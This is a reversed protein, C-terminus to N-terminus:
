LSCACLTSRKFILRAKKTAVLSDEKNNPIPNAKHISKTLDAKFEDIGEITVPVFILNDGEGISIYITLDKISDGSTDCLFSSQLACASTNLPSRYVTNSCGLPNSRLINETSAKKKREAITVFAVILLFAIVTKIYQLQEPALLAIDKFYLGWSLSADCSIVNFDFSYILTSVSYHVADLIAGPNILIALVGLIPTLLLSSLLM